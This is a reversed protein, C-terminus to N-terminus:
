RAASGAAARAATGTAAGPQGPGGAPVTRVGPAQSRKPAPEATVPLTRLQWCGGWSGRSDTRRREDQRVEGRHHCTGLLQGDPGRGWRSRSASAMGMTLLAISPQPRAQTAGSSDAAPVVARPGHHPGDRGDKGPLRRPFPVPVNRRLPVCHFCIPPRGSSPTAVPEPSRRGSLSRVTAKPTSPDLRPLMRPPPHCGYSPAPPSIPKRAGAHPTIHPQLHTYICGSLSTSTSCSSRVSTVRRGTGLATWPEGPTAPHASTGRM